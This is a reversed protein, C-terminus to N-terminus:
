KGKESGSKKMSTQENVMKIRLVSFSYPAADLTLKKNRVSVSSEKPSVAQPNDFSNVDDLQKSQLVVMKGEGVINKVGELAISSSQSKGAANVLKIILENTGEDIVASAYLSDQGAIAENNLTIPVVKTGKYLSFLKQVHYDPTPVTKLNDVWILDPTWQWGDAHAFLPAYSAM